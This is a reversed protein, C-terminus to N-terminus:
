RALATTAPASAAAAPIRNQSLCLRSFKSRKPKTAEDQSDMNKAREKQESNLGNEVGVEIYVWSICENVM